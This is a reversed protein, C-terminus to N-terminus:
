PCSRRHLYGEEYNHVVGACTGVNLFCHGRVDKQYFYDVVGTCTEDADCATICDEVRTAGEVKDSAGDPDCQEFGLPEYSCTAGDCSKRFTRGGDEEAWDPKTPSACSDHVLYCADVAHLEFYDSVAKCDARETCAALCADISTAGPVLVYTPGQAYADGDSCRASYAATAYYDSHCEVVPPEGGHGGEGLDPEPEDGVGAHAGEGVNPSPETGPKGGAPHPNVQASGASTNGPPRGDPGTGGNTSGGSTDVPTGTGSTAGGTSPAQSGSGSSSSTTAGASGGASGRRASSDNGLADDGPESVSQGGCSAALCIGVVMALREKVM